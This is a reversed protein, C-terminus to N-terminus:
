SSNDANKQSHKKKAKKNERNKQWSFSKGPLLILDNSFKQDYMYDFFLETQPDIDENAYIGIRADGNVLVIKTRCNPNEQSENIFRTKNGKKSADVVFDATLNFLYSSNKRDYICGRREGEQQSIYEGLYEHIFDDKKLAHKNYVGWGAGEVSSKAVLLKCHRRMTVNDNRCKQKTAPKNPEDQCTGCELCLDPDCERKAKFCCCANSSCEGKKCECGPFFYASRSGWICAKTCFHLNQVCDCNEKACLGEHDCPTFADRFHPKQKKALWAEPAKIRSKKRKKSKKRSTAQNSNAGIFQCLLNEENSTFSINKSKALLEVNQKSTDLASSIAKKDGQFVKFAHRVIAKEKITPSRESTSLKNDNTESNDDNTNPPLLKHDQWSDNTEKDVALMTQLEVHSQEHLGHTHCDYQFCRKCFITKYSDNIDNYEYERNDRSEIGSNKIPTMNPTIQTKLSHINRIFEFRLQVYKVDIDRLDAIKEMVRAMVNKYRDRNGMTSPTLELRYTVNQFVYDMLVNLRDQEHEAGLDLYRQRKSIDFMASMTKHEDEDENDEGFYPAYELEKQDEVRSNKKLFVVSHGEPRKQTSSEIAIPKNIQHAVFRNSAASIKIKHQYPGIAINSSIVFRESLSPLLPFKKRSNSKRNSSNIKSLVDDRSKKLYSTLNVRKDDRINTEIENMLIVVLHDIDDNCAWDVSSPESDKKEENM